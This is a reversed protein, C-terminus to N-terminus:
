RQSKSTGQGTRIQINELPTSTELEWLTSSDSFHFLPCNDLWIVQNKSSGKVSFEIVGESGNNLKFSTANPTKIVLGKTYSDIEFKVGEKSLGSWKEGAPSTALSGPTVKEPTRFKVAGQMWNCSAGVVQKMAQKDVKNNQRDKFLVYKGNALVPVFENLIYSTIQYQKMMTGNFLASWYGFEGGWIIADPKDRRLAEVVLDQSRKSSLNLVNSVPGASKYDLIHFWTVPEVGFDFIRVKEKDGILQRFSENVQEVRDIYQTTVTDSPGVKLNTPQPLVIQSDASTNQLSSWMAFAILFLGLSQVGIQSAKIKQGLYLSLGLLLLSISHSLHWDPWNLFKVFFAFTTIAMPLLWLNASNRENSQVFAGVSIFLFSLVILPVIALFLVYNLGLNFQFNMGWAFLYGDGSLVLNRFWGVLLGKPFLLVIISSFCVLLILIVDIFRKKLDRNILHLFVISFLTAGFPYIGEPSWLLGLALSLGLLTGTARNPKQIYNRLTLSIVILPIMRTILMASQGMFIEIFYNLTLIFITIDLRKSLSMIALGLIVYELPRVFAMVGATMGWATPEVIIGGLFLRLFHEWMGHEDIFSIWPLDGKYFSSVNNYGHSEYANLSIPPQLRSYLLFCFVIIPMVATLLNTFHSNEDSSLKTKYRRLYLQLVLLALSLVYFAITTQNTYSRFKFTFCLGFVFILLLENKGTRSSIRTIYDANRQKRILLKIEFALFSVFILGYVPYLQQNTHIFQLNKFFLNALLSLSLLYVMLVLIFHEFQHKIIHNTRKLLNSLLLISSKQDATLLLWMPIIILQLAVFLMIELPRSGNLFLLPSGLVDIEIEHFKLYIALAISVEVVVFILHTQMRRNRSSLV